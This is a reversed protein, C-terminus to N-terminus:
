IWPLVFFKQKYGPFIDGFFPNFFEDGFLDRFPNSYREVIKAAKINVVAPATKEVAKVVLNKRILIGNEVPFAVNSSFLVILVWLFFTKNKM